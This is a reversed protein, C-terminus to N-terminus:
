TPNRLPHYKSPTTNKLPHPPTPYSPPNHYIPSSKCQTASLRPSDVTDGETEILWTVGKQEGPEEMGGEGGSADSSGIARKGGEQTGMLWLRTRNAREHIGSEPSLSQGAARTTGQGKVAGRRGKVMALAVGM